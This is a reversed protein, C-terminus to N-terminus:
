ALEGIKYKLMEKRASNSHGVDEFEESADKGAVDMLIEEGGPHEKQFKSIDYVGKNIVIWLNKRQNHKEVEVMTYKKVSSGSSM